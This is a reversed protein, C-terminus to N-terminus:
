DTATVRVHTVDCQVPYSEWCTDTWVEVVTTATIDGLTLAEGDSSGIVTDGSFYM